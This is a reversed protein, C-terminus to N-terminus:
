DVECDLQEACYQEAFINLMRQDNNPMVVAHAREGQCALQWEKVLAESPRPFVVTNSYLNRTAPVGNSRLTTTLGEANDICDRITKPWYSTHKAILADYLAIVALGSRSGSLTSDVSNLYEIRKAFRAMHERKTVVVGCPIPSGPMKHGSASVSDHLTGSIAYPASVKEIFPLIMGGLAGDGHLYIHERAIGCSTAADLMMAASDYAGSFTSSINSVMILSKAGSRKIAESLANYDIEGSPQTAVRISPLSYAIAAKPVSYHAAESYVLHGQPQSCKGYLIGALNGETGSSTVYGWADSFEWLELFFDIVDQEYKRSDSAYNSAIYPDGLNNILLGLADAVSRMDFRLNYPYGLHKAHLRKLQELYPQYSM